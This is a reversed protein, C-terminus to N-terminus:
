QHRCDQQAPVATPIINGYEDEGNNEKGTSLSLGKRSEENERESKRSTNGDIEALVSFARTKAKKPKKIKSLPSFKSIPKLGKGKAKAGMGPGIEDVEKIQVINSRALIEKGKPESEKDIDIEILDKANLVSQLIEGTQNGEKNEKIEEAIIAKQQLNVKSSGASDLVTERHGSNAYRGEVVMERETQIEGAVGSKTLESRVRKSNARFSNKVEARILDTYKCEKVETGLPCELMPHGIIGCKYCLDPLREYRLVALIVGDEPGLKVKLGRKLPKSIDVKVRVRIYKGLCDGSAGPDVEEVLGIQSGLSLGADMNLCMLPLNHIQIWFSIQSFKMNSYDGIGCPVELAIISEQYRWPGGAMVRRRDETSSFHFVFMNKGLMEVVVPDKTRWIYNVTSIFGDRNVTKTSLIKGILSKAVKDEGAVRAKEGLVCVPIDDEEDSLSLSQCLTSIDM